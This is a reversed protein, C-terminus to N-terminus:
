DRSIQKVRYEHLRKKIEPFQNVQYKNMFYNVARKSKDILQFDSLSAIKLNLYGHQRTGFIEGPGRRKLDYEAVKIGSQTKAFLQLREFVNEDTSETYLLCYSQRDGRGVRGRLQHLQALGFREAAEIMMVAANPVDIGVEVVPTAVLIDLKKNKFDLMILDKEKTKIKGHLLGLKFRSFVKNKLRDFEKTVAKVSKMTEVESEEILPCIIFVQIGNKKIQESIWRYGTERKEKPVLFTKVPLRGIPMEDIVSLDLEGYLTLAVTRPIPTATMTLLHPNIGKEKLKARQEVGFRHQEDIIVLGVNDYKIKEGLLAHTGIIVDAIGIKYHPRMMFHSSKQTGTKLAIKLPYKKFLLFITQYHQMALIETPAMILSQFGNLYAIYCAIAAVITKGSGVDGELFRNMPRPKKLDDVIENVVRKQANTLQFPLGKIFKQLFLYRDDGLNFAHTVHESDWEKRVLKASLQIIFLEDFALRSRSQNAQHLDKPFHINQYALHESILENYKIIEAPLFEEISDIRRDDKLYNYIICFIKDRIVKSSLGKKEPYIPILRGTHITEENFDKIIEFERSEISINHFYGKVEGALSILLSPKLIRLLYPQNYWVVEVKGSADVITAKQITLGKKTYVNQAKLIKGKITVTEGIQLKSIPSILSYNEYRFPFYNLLDWYSNIGSSKLRRITASSTSPLVEIKTDLIM